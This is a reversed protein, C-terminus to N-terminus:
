YYFLSAMAVIILITSAVLGYTIWRPLPPEPHVM